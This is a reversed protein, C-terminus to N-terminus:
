FPINDDDEPPKPAPTAWSTPLAGQRESLVECAEGVLEPFWRDYDKGNKGREPPMGDVKTYGIRGTVRVRDGRECRPAATFFKVDHRRTFAGAEKVTLYSVKGSKAGGVRDVTGVIEFSNKDQDM